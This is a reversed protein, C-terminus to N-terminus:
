PTPVKLARRIQLELAAQDAPAFGRHVMLVRGDPGILVSTPMAQVAYARPTTGAPDFAVDFRAPRAELFAAAAKPQQDVNVGVVRLGAAAYRQQMDNLWPFSLKCPGCWSAWFDLWVTKGRYDALRLLGTGSPLEFPLAADGPAIARAPRAFGASALLLFGWRRRSLRVSNVVRM